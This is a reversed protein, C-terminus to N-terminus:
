DLYTSMYRRWDHGFASVTNQVWMPVGAANCNKFSDRMNERLRPLDAAQAGYREETWAEEQAWYALGELARFQRGNYTFNLM